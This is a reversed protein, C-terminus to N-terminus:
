DHFVLTSTDHKHDKGKYSTQSREKSRKEKGKHRSRGRRQQTNDQTDVVNQQQQADKICRSTSGTSAESHGTEQSDKTDNNMTNDPLKDLHAISEDCSLDIM